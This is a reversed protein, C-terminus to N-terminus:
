RIMNYIENIRNQFSIRNNKYSENRYSMESKVITILVMVDTGWIKHIGNNELLSSSYYKRQSFFTLWYLYDYEQFAYLSDEWDIVIPIQKETYMININSLDGHNVVELYRKEMIRQLSERCHLYIDKKLFSDAYLIELSEKGAEIVDRFCYKVEINKTALKRQYNNICKKVEYFDTSYNYPFLYDMIMFVLQRGNIEIDVREIEIIDSYVVSMIEIEKILNEKYEIGYQHTKVFKRKGNIHLEFFIGLTGGPFTQEIKVDKYKERLKIELTSIFADIDVKTEEISNKKLHYYKSLM